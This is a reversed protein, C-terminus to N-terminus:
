KRGYIAQIKISIGSLDYNKLRVYKPPNEVLVSGHVSGGVDQTILHQLRVFNSNDQSGEVYLLMATGDVMYRVYNDTDNLTIEGDVANSGMLVAVSAHTVDQNKTSNNNVLEGSSNGKATRTVNNAVDHLSLYMRPYLINEAYSGTAATKGNMTVRLHGQTNCSLNIKSGSGDTATNGAVSVSTTNNKIDRLLENARLSVINNQQQLHHDARRSM